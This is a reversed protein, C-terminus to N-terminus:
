RPAIKQILEMSQVAEEYTCNRSEGSQIFTVFDEMQLRYMEDIHNEAAEFLVETELNSRTLKLRGGLFEYHLRGAECLASVENTYNPNIFDLEFHLETGSPAVCSFEAWDEVDIELKSRHDIKSNLLATEGFWHIMLDIEHSLTRVVGGGLKKQAMYELRYDKGPHWLPLHYGRKFDLWFVRGVKSNLYTGAAEILSHFRLCYGVIMREQFGNFAKIEEPTNCLPKEVFLKASSKEQSKVVEAHNSTPNSIIIGDCDLNIFESPDFVDQVADMGNKNLGKGSRLAYLEVGGIEQLHAAHRRGISGLGVIGIKM